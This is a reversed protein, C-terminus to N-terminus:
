KSFAAYVAAVSLVAAGGVAIPSFLAAPLLDPAVQKTMKAIAPPYAASKNYRLDDIFKQLDQDSKLEFAEAWLFFDSMSDMVSSFTAVKNSGKNTATTNRANPATMGFLNNYAEFSHAAWSGTEQRSIALPLKATITCLPHALRVAYFLLQFQKNTM